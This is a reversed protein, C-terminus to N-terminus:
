KYKALSVNRGERRPDFLMADSVPTTGAIVRSYKERWGKRRGYVTMQYGRTLFLAADLVLAVGYLVRLWVNAVGRVRVAQRRDVWQRVMQVWFRCTHRFDLVDFGDKLLHFVESANYRGGAGSVVRQRNLAAAVGFRKRYEVTLIFHGGTKLVRHCERIAGRAAAGGPLTGHSMVVVDFQKDEFPLEGDPGACLVTEDGLAAAVLAQRQPTPEVSMWYGGEQRLIRSVGANTFGIDLGVRAGKAQGRLFHLVSSIERRLPLSYVNRDLLKEPTNHM